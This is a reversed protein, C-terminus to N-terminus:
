PFKESFFSPNELPFVINFFLKEVIGNDYVLDVMKRGIFVSFFKEGICRRYVASGDGIEVFFDMKM